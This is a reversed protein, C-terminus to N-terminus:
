FPFDSGTMAYSAAVHLESRGSVEGTSGAASVSCTGGLVQRGSSCPVKEAEM